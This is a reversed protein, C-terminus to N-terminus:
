NKYMLPDDFKNSEFSDFMNSFDESEPTAKKGSKKEQDGLSRGKQNSFHTKSLRSQPSDQRSSELFDISGFDLESNEGESARGSGRAELGGPFSGKRTESGGEEGPKTRFDELKKRSFDLKSPSVRSEALSLSEIEKILSADEPRGQEPPGEKGGNNASNRSERSFIQKVQDEM